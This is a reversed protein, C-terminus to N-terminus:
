KFFNPDTLGKKGFKIYVAILNSIIPVVLMGIIMTEDPILTDLVPFLYRITLIIASYIFFSLGTWKLRFNRKIKRNKAIEDGHIKQKAAFIFLSLGFLLVALFFINVLLNIDM